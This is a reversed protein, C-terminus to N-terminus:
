SEKQMSKDRYMREDSLKLADALQDKNAATAIGFAINVLGNVIEPCRIMRGVAEEAVAASTAPLLVAFEDGGIRAVIDESRFAGLIIRAASRILHDGAEHGQSDNVTKLGNIDAMVISVPFMRSHSLRALEEDFFARNYLGTLTDHTSDYRLTVEIEKRSTIDHAIGIIGILAGADNFIPTEIREVYQIHGERDVTSEEFYTRKGTAMVERSDKEYKVAIENPYIDYVNKGVLDKPAVGFAKCFPDNAAVYRGKRDKLWAINPINDLIAQQQRIVEGIREEALKRETIDEMALLIIHSGINDRFIQRANLLIIKRGIDIFDHEVEYGNIVTDHPLIEEVLVRLRPIDWQRNGLDYIFNGITEEPTVKFTDYFSHNATLIKLDSNLVVLPERVTEVINEAYERADQIERELRKRETIDHLTALYAPKGEWETDGVRMEAIARKGERNAIDLETTEGAVIPFGFPNGLLEEAKRGFLSKAAPNVFLIMGTGDVIVIGDTNTSVINHFRAESARLELTRQQILEKLNSDKGFM